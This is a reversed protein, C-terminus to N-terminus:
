NCDEGDFLGYNIFVNEIAIIKDSEYTDENYIIEKVEELVKIATSQAIANLDLKDVYELVYKGVSNAMLDKCFGESRMEDKILDKEFM